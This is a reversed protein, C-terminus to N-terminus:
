LHLIYLIFGIESFRGVTKSHCGLRFLVGQPKWSNSCTPRLSRQGQTRNRHFRSLTHLPNKLPCSADACATWPPASTTALRAWTNSGTSCMNARKIQVKAKENRDTEWIINPYDPHPADPCSHSRDAVEEEEPRWQDKMTQWSLIFITKYLCLRCCLQQQSATAASSRCLTAWKFINSQRCFLLFPSTTSPFLKWM